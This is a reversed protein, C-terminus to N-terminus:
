GFMNWESGDRKAESLQNKLGFTESHRKEEANALEHREENRTAILNIDDAWSEGM